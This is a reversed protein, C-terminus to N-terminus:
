RARPPRPSTRRTPSCAPRAPRRSATCDRDASPTTRRPPCPRARITARSSPPKTRASRLSRRSRSERSRRTRPASATLRSRRPVLRTLVRLGARVGPVLPDPAEVCALVARTPGVAVSSPCRQRVKEPVLPAAEGPALPLVGGSPLVPGLWPLVGGYYSTKSQALPLPQSQSVGAGLWTATITRPDVRRLLVLDTGVDHLAFAGAGALEEPLEVQKGTEASFLKPGDTDLLVLEGTKPHVFAAALRQSPKLEPIVQRAGPVGTAVDIVQRVVHAKPRDVLVFSAETPSTRAFGIVTAQQVDLKSAEGARKGTIWVVRDDDADHGVWGDGLRVPVVPRNGTALGDRLTFAEGVFAGRADFRRGFSEERGRHFLAIGEGSAADFALGAPQEEYPVTPALEPAQIPPAAPPAATLKKGRLDYAVDDVRVGGPVAGIAPPKKDMDLSAPHAVVVEGVRKTGELETITIRKEVSVDVLARSAPGGCDNKAGRRDRRRWPKGEPVKFPPPVVWTWVLAWRGTAKGAEDLLVVPTLAGWSARLSEAEVSRAGQANPRFNASRIDLKERKGLKRPLPGPAIEAVQLRDGEEGVLITGRTTELVQVDTWAGADADDVFTVVEGKEDIADVLLKDGSRVAYVTKAGASFAVWDRPARRAPAWTGKESGVAFLGCPDEDEGALPCKPVDRRWDLTEHVLAGAGLRLVTRTRVLPRSATRDAVPLAFALPSLGPPDPPPAPPTVVAPPPEPAPAPLAPEPQAAVCASVVAPTVLVALEKAM